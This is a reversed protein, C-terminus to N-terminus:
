VKVKVFINQLGSDWRNELTQSSTLMQVSQNDFDTIKGSVGVATSFNM